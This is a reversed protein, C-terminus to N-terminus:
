SNTEGKGSATAFELTRSPVRCPSVFLLYPCVAAKFWAQVGEMSASWGFLSGSLLQLTLPLPRITYARAVSAYVASLEIM